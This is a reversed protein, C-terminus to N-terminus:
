NILRPINERVERNRMRFVRWDLYYHGFTLSVSIATLFRMSWPWTSFSYFLGSFVDRISLQVLAVILVGGIAWRYIRKLSDDSVESRKVMRRTFNFYEMGHVGIRVIYALFSLGALPWFLLRLQWRVRPWVLKKPLNFSLGIIGGVLSFSVLALGYIATEINNPVINTIKSIFLAEQLLVCVLLGEFLKTESAAIRESVEFSCEGSMQANRLQAGSLGRQQRLFHWSLALGNTFLFAALLSSRWEQPVPIVKTTILGFFLFFVMVATLELWVVNKKAFNEFNLARRVEPVFCVGVFSIAIHAGGLLVITAVFRLAIRENYSFVFFGAVELISCIILAVLALSLIPQTAKSSTFSQYVAIANM